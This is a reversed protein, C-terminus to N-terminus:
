RPVTGFLRALAGHLKHPFAAQPLFMFMCLGTILRVGREQARKIAPSDADPNGPRYLWVDMIGANACDLLVQETRDASLLILARKPIPSIDGVTKYCRIGDIEEAVPHVPIADYGHKILERFLSRSYKKADRSPAIVALRRDSLFDDIHARTIM